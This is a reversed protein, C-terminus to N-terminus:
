LHREILTAIRGFPFNYRDNLATLSYSPADEGPIVAAPVFPSGSTLGAWRRVATPLTTASIDLPNNPAVYGFVGTVGYDVRNVISAEAAMECLVGLCCFLPIGSDEALRHLYARGQRYKGSLLRSVWEDRVHPNV